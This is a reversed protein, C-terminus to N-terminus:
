LPFGLHKRFFDAITEWRRQNQLPEAIMHTTGVLPLFDHPKGANLLAQSLKLSHFFYVNDDATGHMLLLPRRLNKAYTLLSSERYGSTNELPMGLYRETYHTDYDRWDVVPAGSVAAHFVDPCKLLALASLYGGFSWGHIGVRTKDLEPHRRCLEELTDVQDELPIVGFSGLISREWARGRFPTGRGDMTVVVFGQDALWQNLLFRRPHTVVDTRHPGGYVDVIVPYKMGVEFGRPRVIATRIERKGLVAFEVNAFQSPEEAISPLEAYRQSGVGCTQKDAGNLECDVSRVYSKPMSQLTVETHVWLKGDESFSGSHWGSTQTLPKIQGSDLLIQYIHRESPEQGGLVYLSKSQADVSLLGRYGVEKPVVTKILTGDKSRLELEYLGNRETSWLFAAGKSIWRPVTQDLNFWAADSERLLCTTAGTNPDAVLIQIEKQDRSQVVLTLPSQKQWLVKALYPFRERDWAIWAFPGGLPPIIGLRVKANIGGPRPYSFRQPEKEPHGPDAIYFEEMGQEDVECVAIQSSDPSWFYGSFRDMEEQAVFEALGYSIKPHSSQTLQVSCGRDRDFVFLNREQVYALYRDDPSFRVDNAFGQIKAEVVKKTATEILFIRGSYPILLLTGDHSFSFTTFGKAVLRVRERHSQEEKSLTAEGQLLEHPSLYHRATQTKIEYEYLHLHFDPAEARLFFIQKGSPHFLPNVPRGLLYGQTRFYTELLSSDSPNNFM